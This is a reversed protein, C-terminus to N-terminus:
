HCYADGRYKQEHVSALMVFSRPIQGVVACWNRVSNEALAQTRGATMLDGNRAVPEACLYPPSAKETAPGVTQFENGSSM